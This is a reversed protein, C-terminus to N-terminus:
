RKKKRKKGGAPKTADTSAEPAPAPKTARPAARLLAAIDKARVILTLAVVLGLLGAVASGIQAFGRVVGLSALGLGLGPIAATWRASSAPLRAGLTRAVAGGWAMLGLAALLLLAALAVRTWLDGGGEHTAAAILDAGRPLMRGHITVEDLATEPQRELAGLRGPRQVELARGHVVRIAVDAAEGGDEFRPARIMGRATGAHVEVVGTEGETVRLVGDFMRSEEDRQSVTEFDYRYFTTERLTRSGEVPTAFANTAVLSLGVVTTMVGYLLPGLMAAAAQQRTTAAQAQAHWVGSVGGAGVLPPLAHLMAAVAIEGALAGTFAGAIPADQVADFIARGFGSFGRAPESLFAVLGAAFLALVAVVAIWGALAGVRKPPLLALVVGLGAVILVIPAASGAALHEAAGTLAAGHTGGYFAFGALPVLVLLAAGAFRLGGVPDDLLRGALSGTPEGARGPPATRALAAEGMRLPMMLFTFLWVWAIAGAGGLSVATAAGVAGAAGYSAVASLLTAAGPHISGGAGADVERVARFAAGLKTIQPLGLRVTLLISAVLTLPGTAWLWIVELVPDLRSPDM